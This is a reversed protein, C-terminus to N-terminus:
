PHTTVGPGRVKLRRRAYRFAREFCYWVVGWSGPGGGVLRVYERSPLLMWRALTLRDRANAAARALERLGVRTSRRIGAVTIQRGVSDTRRATQRMATLVLDPIPADLENALYALMAAIPFVLNARQAGELFEDWHLTPRKTLLLWDLDVLHRGERPMSAARGCIRLLAHADGLVRTGAGAVDVAASRDWLDAVTPAPFALPL